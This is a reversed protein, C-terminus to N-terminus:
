EVAVSQSVGITLDVIQDCLLLESRPHIANLKVSFRVPLNLPARWEM